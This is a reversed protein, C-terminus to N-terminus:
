SKGGRSGPLHGLGERGVWPQDGGGHLLSRSIAASEPSTSFFSRITGPTASACTVTTSGSSSGSRSTSAGASRAVTPRRGSGRSTPLRRSAEAQRPPSDSTPRAEIGPKLGFSTTTTARGAMASTNLLDLTVRGHAEKTDADMRATPANGHPPRRAARRRGGSCGAQPEHHHSPPSLRRHSHGARRLARRPPQSAPSQPM